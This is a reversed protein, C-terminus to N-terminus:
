AVVGEAPCDARYACMRCQKGRRAEFNESRVIAAAEGLRAQVWNDARGIDFGEPVPVKDLSPQIREAAQPTGKGHDLYVLRAAGPTRTGTGLADFAGYQVAVQYVGLQTMTTAAPKSITAGTKYDIVVLQDDLLELRDAVGRLRVSDRGGDPAPVLVECSFPVEVGVLAGDGRTAEWDLWAAVMSWVRDRRGDNRWPPTIPVQQWARDFADPVDERALTGNSVGQAIEHVLTGIRAHEPSMAGGGARNDLFWRRPCELLADVSSGSLPVPSDVAVIPTGPTTTGRLSWWSSPHATTVVPELRALVGAAAARLLPSRAHDTGAHRLEGVLHAATTPQDPLLPLVPEAAAGAPDSTAVVYEANGHDANEHDGDLDTVMEIGRAALDTVFRSPIGADADPDDVACVLLRSGARACAQYFLRRQEAILEGATAPSTLGEPGLCDVDLLGGHRATSPWTGEQVGAVVVVPWEGGACRHATVLDVAERRARKSTRVDAAIAQGAIEDVLEDVAARGRRTGSRSAFDFLAMVADLDRDAHAAEPGGSLATEQLRRGWNTASWAAWLIEQVSADAAVQERTHHLAAGVSAEARLVPALGEGGAARSQRHQRLAVADVMGLPGCLLDDPIVQGDGAVQDGTEVARELVALLVRVAPEQALPIDDDSTVPVGFRELRRLLAAADAGHRRVIVAMDSWALGLREHADLLYAAISAAHSRESGACLLRVDAEIGHAPGGASDPPAPVPDRWSPLGGPHPMRAVTPALAALVRPHHRHDVGLTRVTLHGGAPGAFLRAVHEVAKPDAGRFSYVGQDPNATAVLETRGTPPALVRLLELHAPVGDHLDDVLITSWQSRVAPGTVPDAVMIRVRHVLEDYDVVQELDLVDLYEEFLAAAREWEPRGSDRGLRALDQPDMGLQRCRALLARLDQSFARTLAGGGVSAPWPARSGAIIERLRFEQEPATLVRWARDDDSLRGGLAHALGHVSMVPIAAGVRDVREALRDAMVRAANRSFALVLVRRPDVGGSVVRDVALEELLTTKGTGAAGLVLQAGGRQEITARQDADLTTTPRVPTM